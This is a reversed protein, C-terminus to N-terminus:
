SMLLVGSTRDPNQEDINIPNAHRLEAGQARVTALFAGGNFARDALLLMEPDLRAVLRAAYTIEGAARPGFV